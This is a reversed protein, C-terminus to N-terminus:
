SSLRDFKCSFINENYFFSSNSWSSFSFSFFLNSFSYISLDFFSSSDLSCCNLISSIFSWILSFYLFISKSVCSASLHLWIISCYFIFITARWVLMSLLWALKLSCYCFKCFSMVSCCFWCFNTFSRWSFYWFCNKSFSFSLYSRCTTFEWFYCSSNSISFMFFSYIVCFYNYISFLWFSIFRPIYNSLFFMSIVFNFPNIEIM